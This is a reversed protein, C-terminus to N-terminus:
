RDMIDLRSSLLLVGLLQMLVNPCQSSQAWQQSWMLGEVLVEVQEGDLLASSRM